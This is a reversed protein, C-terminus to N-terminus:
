WPLRKSLIFPCSCGWSQMEGGVLVVPIAMVSPFATLGIYSIDSLFSLVQLVDGGPRYERLPLSAVFSGPAGEEDVLISAAFSLLVGKIFRLEIPASLGLAPPKVGVMAKGRLM